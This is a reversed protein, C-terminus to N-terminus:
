RRRQFGVMGALAGLVLLSVSPEPVLQLSVVTAGGNTVLNGRVADVTVNAPNMTLPSLNSAPMNWQDGEAMFIGFETSDTIAATSTADVVFVAMKTAAAVFTGGTNVNLIQGTGKGAGGAGNVTITGTGRGPQDPTGVNMEMGLYVFLGSDYINRATGSLIVPDNLNSISGIMVLSGNALPNDDSTIFNPSTPGSNTFTITTAAASGISFLAAVMSALSLLSVRRTM